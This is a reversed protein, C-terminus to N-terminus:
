RNRSLMMARKKTYALDWVSHGLDLGRAEFRTLPRTAPRPAFDSRPHEDVFETSQAMVRRMWEAYDEWDTALLLRGGPELAAALTAVFDPQILRRKHHRAKPWPDPFFIRIESVSAPAFCEALALRADMALVRVNQLKRQEVGLLLSGVGPQYVDIGVLNWEPASEAWSLLAQGMGFGIEVGLPGTRAFWGPWDVIDGAQELVLADHHERWARAQGRTLRGRRRVYTRLTM